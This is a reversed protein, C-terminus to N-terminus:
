KAPTSTAALAAAEARSRVGLKNLIRGVHHEATKPSIFLQAAIDSNSYGQRVLDLVESERATLSALLLPGSRDRMRVGVGLSRLLARARDRHSTAGLREFAALAARAEAVANSEDDNAAFVEALELRVLGVLLPREGNALRRQAAEYAVVAADREGAAAAVRGRAIDAEAALVPSEAEAAIVALNDAAARAADVDGDALEVEVLLSLLTAGRLADGVLVGLGRRLVAAAAGPERRSLHLRAMPVCAAIRDEYPELLAAAEDLRGQEVRLLALTAATDARHGFSSSGTPGLVENMATEAEPWRGASCLVSGYAALCHTHLVRPRGDFRDLVMAQVLTTWEEARRVDGVRDCSSLMSCFSKGVVTMDHVEGAAIAALAADLRDFGEQVRGQTVLALGSDALARVELAGDDYEAAIALAREASALLEDVDPRECAMYALELHGWEPCPGVEDLLRRARTVWGNGAATNGLTDAHLEALDIAVRAAARLEGARRLSAFAREWEERADSFRDDMYAIAGLLVHALPPDELEIATTLRALATDIDGAGLATGAEELLETAGSV